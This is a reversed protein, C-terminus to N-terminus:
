QSSFVPRYVEEESNDRTVSVGPLEDPAKRDETINEYAATRVGPDSVMDGPDEFCGLPPMVAPKSASSRPIDQSLAPCTAAEEEGGTSHVGSRIDSPSTTCRHQELSASDVPLILLTGKTPASTGCGM